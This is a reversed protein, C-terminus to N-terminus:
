VIGDFREPLRYQVGYDPRDFQWFGTEGRPKWSKAMDRRLWALDFGEREELQAFAEFVARDEGRAEAFWHRGISTEKVGVGIEEIVRNRRDMAAVYQAFDCFKLHLLYMGEPANLNEAKAYHGGRSLQAPRGLVCPKSHYPLLKVHRRPGIVHDGVPADERDIRHFVDLGVPTYVRRRAKGKLWSLLTHGTEPDMVVIEDVDGVVVHAYYGLLGEVMGNLLRWRKREFNPDPDGPLGIVNCGEAMRAVTEGRGHNIVYCNERGFMEGYYALWKELFFADDRVMTLAAATTQM